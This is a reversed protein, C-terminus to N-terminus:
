KITIKVKKNSAKYKNNGKYNITATYKGKKSLKLKFVAKGKSNTTATYTKGKIKLTVKVKAIAKKGAKLTITYKKTKAKAKFTAKKATITSKVKTPTKADIKKNLESIKEAQTKVTSNLNAITETQTKVTSNLNAITETQTKVTSNLNAIVNKQEKIIADKDPTVTINIRNTSGDLVDNGLYECVITDNGITNPTYQYIIVGNILELEETKNNITMNIKTNPVLVNNNLVQIIILTTKNVTIESSTTIEISSPAKLYITVNNSICTGIKVYINLIGKNEQTYKENITFSNGTGNYKNEDNIYVQYDLHESIDADYANPKSLTANYNLIIPINSSVFQGDMDSTLNIKDIGVITNSYTNNEIITKCPKNITITEKNVINGSFTNNTITIMSTADNEKVGVFLVEDGTVTNNIFENKSFVIEVTNKNSIVARIIGRGQEIYNYLYKSGISKFTTNTDFTMQIVAGYLNTAGSVGNEEFSNEGTIVANGNANLTIFLAGGGKHAVNQIFSNSGNIIINNVKAAYIAGGRSTVSQVQEIFNNKFTNNESIILDNYTTGTFYIAGGDGTGIHNDEFTNEGTIRFISGSSPNNFYIAGGSLLAYNNKFTNKGIIILNGSGTCSIVGGIAQTGAVSSTASNDIFKNSGNILINGNTLYIVSGGKNASNNKFTNSGLITINGSGSIVAGVGTSTGANFVALNNEYTVEGNLTLDANDITIATNQANNISVNNFTVSLGTISFLSAVNSADIKINTNSATIDFKNTGSLTTADSIIIQETPAYLGTSGPLLMITGDNTVKGIADAITTPKDITGEQASTADPDCYITNGANGLIEGNDTSNDTADQAKLDNSVSIEETSVENSIDEQLNDVAVADDAAEDLTDVAVDDAASVAGVLCALLILFIAIHRIKM